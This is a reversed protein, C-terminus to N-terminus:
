HSLRCCVELSEPWANSRIKSRVTGKNRSFCNDFEVGHKNETNINADEFKFFFQLETIVCLLIGATRGLHQTTAFEGKEKLTQRQEHLTRDALFFPAVMKLGQFTAHSISSYDAWYGFTLSKLFVQNATPAVNKKVRLYASLTPWLPEARAEAETINVSRMDIALLERQAHIHDTWDRESLHAAQEKDLSELLRRYGSRRFAPGRDAPAELLASINYLCDIMTRVLPLCAFSYGQRYGRHQRIEDSHLFYLLDYTYTAQRLLVGLDTVLYNPNPLRSIGEREVKHTLTIALNEIVSQFTSADIGETQNAM